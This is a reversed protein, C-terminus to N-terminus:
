HREWRIWTIITGKGEASEIDFEDALKKSGSLGIGMGTQYKSIPKPKLAEDIDPIGPGSDSFVLQIGKKGNPKQLIDAVVKGEGAYKFINRTLESLATLAHMRELLSFHLNNMIFVRIKNRSKLIDAENAIKIELREAADM